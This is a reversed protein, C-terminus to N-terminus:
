KNEIPVKGSWNVLRALAHENLQKKVKSYDETDAIIKWLDSSLGELLVYEHTRENSIFTRSEETENMYTQFSLWKPIILEM